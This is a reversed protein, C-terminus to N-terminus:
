RPPAVPVPEPPAVPIVARRGTALGVDFTAVGDGFLGAVLLEGVATMTFARRTRLGDNAANWHAGLDGSEFVGADETAAFLTGPPVFALGRIGHPALDAPLPTWTAGGDGSGFIKGSFTGAFMRAPHEPDFAFARATASGPFGASGPGFLDGGDTSRYLGQSTVALVTAPAGPDIAVGNIFSFPIGPSPFWTAGGDTSRFLGHGEAAAFIKAPHSPDIALHGISVPFTGDTIGSVAAHWTAGGDTSKFLGGGAPEAGPGMQSVGAYVTNPASPDVALAAVFESAWDFDALFIKEPLGADVPIWTAGGDTTRYVGGLAGAAYMRLPDSPDVGLTTIAHARIGANSSTWTSGDASRLIGADSTGALIAAPTVAISLIAESSTGNRVRTWTAAGDRSRYIAGDDGGAYVIAPDHPDFALSAVRFSPELGVSAPSWHAGGDSSRFVGSEITGALLVGPEGPAAAISTVRDSAPLGADAHSWSGGGDTSRVVAGAGEGGLAVSAYVASAGDIEIAIASAGAVIGTGVDHWTAARDASRFIGGSLTGVFLVRSDAPDLRLVTADLVTLGASAATWTAGGDTTKFVGGTADTGRFAAAYAVRADTPDAAVSFTRLNTLGPGAASWRAGSDDGRYVGGGVVAAYATGSPGFSISTVIGGPPGASRWTAGGGSVAALSIAVWLGQWSARM